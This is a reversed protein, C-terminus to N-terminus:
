PRAYATPQAAAAPQQLVAPQASPKQQQANPQVPQVAAKAETSLHDREDILDDTAQRVQDPTLTTDARPAPVDHVSPFGFESCASVLVSVAAAVALPGLVRRAM